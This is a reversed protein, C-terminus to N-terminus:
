PAMSASLQTHTNPLHLPAACARGAGATLGAVASSISYMALMEEKTRQSKCEYQSPMNRNHACARSDVAGCCFGHQVNGADQPQAIHGGQGAGQVIVAPVAHQHAQLYSHPHSLSVYHSTCSAHQTLILVCLTHHMNCAYFWSSLKGSTPARNSAQDQMCPTNQDSCPRLHDPTLERGVIGVVM